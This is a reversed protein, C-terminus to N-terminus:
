RCIAATNINSKLIILRSKYEEERREKEAARLELATKALSILGLGLLTASLQWGELKTERLLESLLNTSAQSIMDKGM